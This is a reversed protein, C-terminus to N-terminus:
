EVQFEALYELKLEDDKFLQVILNYDDTVLVKAWRSSNIPYDKLHFKNPALPCNDPQPANSYEKLTEYFFDKYFTNMLECFRLKVEMYPKYSDDGSDKRYLTMNVKWDDDLTVHTTIEGSLRTHGEDDTEVLWVSSQFFNEDELVKKFHRPKVIHGSEAPVLVFSTLLLLGLHVSYSSM